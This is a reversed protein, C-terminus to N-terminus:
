GFHFGDGSYQTQTPPVLWGQDAPVDQTSVQEPLAGQSLWRWSFEGRRM